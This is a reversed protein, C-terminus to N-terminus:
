IMSDVWSDFKPSYGLWRVLYEIKGNRKRTKIVKEIRFVDGQKVKQLEEVYFKGQIPEDAADVIRYTPPDTPLVNVIKFLERTWSPLYGKKFNRKTESIRVWDGIVLKPKSTTHRYLRRQIDRENHITVSAPSVKITSHVTDNYSKV